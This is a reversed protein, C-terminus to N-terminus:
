GVLERYIKDAEVRLKEALDASMPCREITSLLDLVNRYDQWTM